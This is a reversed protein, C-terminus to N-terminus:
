SPQPAPVRLTRTSRPGFAMVLASGATWAQGATLGIRQFLGTLPTTDSLLLCTVALTATVLGVTAVNRHGRVLLPRIALLPTVTLAVYGLIAFIGHFHDTASSRGLPIAAILTIAIGTGAATIWARGGLASRLALAYPLVCLGLAIFGGNMLMRTDAGVAALESIADDNASYRPAITSAVAWAVIFAAPGIIGGLAAVRMATRESRWRGGEPPVTALDTTGVLAPASMPTWAREDAIAFGSPLPCV